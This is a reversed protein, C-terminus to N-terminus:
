QLPAQNLVIIRYALSGFLLLLLGLFRFFPISIAGLIINLIKHDVITSFFILFSLIYTSQIVKSHLM